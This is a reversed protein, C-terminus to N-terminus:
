LGFNFSSHPTNPILLVGSAEVKVASTFHPFGPIYFRLSGYDFGYDKIVNQFVISQQSCMGYDKQIIDKPQMLSNFFYQPLLFNLFSLFWNKYWELYSAKNYFKKRVYNDVLIPIEIGSLNRKEVETRILNKFEKMSSIKAIEPSYEENPVFNILIKSTSNKWLIVFNYMTFLLFITAFFLLFKGTFKIM